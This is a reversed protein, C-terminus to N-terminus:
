HSAPKIAKGIVKWMLPYFLSLDARDHSTSACHIILTFSPVIGVVALSVNLLLMYQDDILNSMLDVCYNM